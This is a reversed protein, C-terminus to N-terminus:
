KPAILTVRYLASDSLIWGNQQDLFYFSRPLFSLMLRKWTAGGDSSELLETDSAIGVGHSSNFFHLTTGYHGPEFYLGDQSAILSWTKGGDKTRYLARKREDLSLWGESQNIFFVTPSQGDNPYTSYSTGGVNFTGRMWTLGGTESHFYCGDGLAFGRSRDFFYVEEVTWSCDPLSATEWHGNLGLHFIAGRLVKWHNSDIRKVAYNPADPSSSPRYKGGAVWGLNADPSLWADQISGDFEPLARESWTKAGDSTEFLQRSVSYLVWGHYRSDFHSVLFDYSSLKRPLVVQKWHVGGDSTSWVGRSSHLWGSHLDTMYLTCGPCEAPLMSVYPTDVDSAFVSARNGCGVIIPLTYFLVLQIARMPQCLLPPKNPSYRARIM